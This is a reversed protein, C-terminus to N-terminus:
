ASIKMPKPAPSIAIHSPITEHLYSDVSVQFNNFRESHRRVTVLVRQGVKGSSFAYAFVNESVDDLDLLINVGSRNTSVITGYLNDLRDINHPMTNETM